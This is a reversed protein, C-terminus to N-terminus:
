GLAPTASDLAARLEARSSIGLKPFIRYLHSGVTRHSLYLREGIERNSLGEAALQAIQLEQPTLQDLLHPTRNVSAEGAARLEQRAQEGWPVAGLMDFTDRAARLHARSEAVRRHRRLWQGFALRLRAQDLPSADLDVDLATQVLAEADADEALLARTQRLNHHLWPSPTQRALAELEAVIGRVADGHGSRVAAEVLYGVDWCREMFHFAPDGPDFMRRLHRYAEEHRGDSLATLGRALQVVARIANSGAFISTGAVAAAAAEALAPQGRVGALVAEAVQAGVANQPQATERALRGAEAADAAAEEWNGLRVASGARLALVQALLALRGQERLGSAATTLFAMAHKLDGVSYAANGLLLLEGPDSVGRSAQRAIREVVVAGREIPAALGLIALLAPDDEVPSLREAAAVLQARAEPGPDSRSMRAAATHLLRLALGAEGLARLREATELLLAMHGADILRVPNVMERIWLLRGQDLPTLDLPEAERVLQVVMDPRGLEFALEAARLLRRGRNGPEVSLAAARELAAVAVEIAGRRQARLAAAELEEAVSEDSGITAAVRHWARQDPRDALVQALAAHVEHRQPLSASQYIASRVLPHRFRLGLEDVELLGTAVAPELAEEAPTGGGVLAAARLVDSLIPGESVSAVLLLTRTAEPLASVRQAFSHELRTTLPLWVPLPLATGQQVKALARPLETLPLPNGAADGLLRARVAPPLDPAHTELLLGAATDDLPALTLQPLGADALASDFGDRIAALLIIPESELRRAVFTLVAATPLDLWQADEAILLLPSTAAAESLLTLAAMAILFQEPAPADVLGFAAQMATRQPAPLSDIGTLVSRLLQHLGAFPLNTETQVGSAALVRMGRDGAQRAAAALLTSKGIGADGRVILAGGRERVQDLLDTLHEVEHDRGFLVPTTM